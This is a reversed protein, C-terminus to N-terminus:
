VKTSGGTREREAPRSPRHSRQERTRRSKMRRVADIRWRALRENQIGRLGDGDLVDRFRFREDGGDVLEIIEAVIFQDAQDSKLRKGMPKTGALKAAHFVTQYKIEISRQHVRQLSDRGGQIKRQGCGAQGVWGAEATLPKMPLPARM